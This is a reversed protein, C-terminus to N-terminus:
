SSNAGQEAQQLVKLSCTLVSLTAHVAHHCCTLAQLSDKCEHYHSSVHGAAPLIPRRCVLQSSMLVAFNGQHYPLGANHDYQRVQSRAMLLGSLEEGDRFTRKFEFVDM